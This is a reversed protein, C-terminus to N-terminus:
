SRSRSTKTQNNTKNENTKNQKTKNKQNTETKKNKTKTKAKKKDLIFNKSSYSITMIEFLQHMQVIIDNWVVMKANYYLAQGCWWQIAIM